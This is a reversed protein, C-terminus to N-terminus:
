EGRYIYPTSLSVSGTEQLKEVSSTGVPHSIRKTARGTVAKPTLPSAITVGHSNRTQPLFALSRLPLCEEFFYSSFRPYILIILMQDEPSLGWSFYFNSQPITSNKRISQNQANQATEPQPQPCRPCQGERKINRNAMHPEKRHQKLEGAAGAASSIQTCFFRTTESAGSAQIQPQQKM